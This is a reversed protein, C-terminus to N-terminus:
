MRVHSTFQACCCFQVSLFPKKCLGAFIGVYPAVWQRYCRNQYMRSVYRRTQLPVSRFMGGPVLHRPRCVCGRARFHRYVAFMAPFDSRRDCCYRWAEDSSLLPSAAGGGGVDDADTYGIIGGSDGSNGSGILGCGAGLEGATTSGGGGGNDDGNDDNGQQHCHRLLPHQDDLYRKRRTPSPPLLSTAGATPVAPHPIASALALALCEDVHALYFAQTHMYLHVPRRTPPPPYHNM